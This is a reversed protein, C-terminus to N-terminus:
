LAVLGLIRLHNLVAYLDGENRRTLRVLDMVSRQGDILLLVMRERRDLPLQDVNMSPTTRRPRASLQEPRLPYGTATAGSSYQPLAPLPAEAANNYGGYLVSMPPAPENPFIGLSDSSNSIGFDPPAPSFTNLSSTSPYGYSPWPSVAGAPSAPSPPAPMPATAQDYGMADQEPGVEDFSYLCEAWVSLSSLAAGGTLTGLLASAPEGQVFQIQGMERAGGQNRTVRLIGTQRSISIMQVINSLRSTAVFRAAM